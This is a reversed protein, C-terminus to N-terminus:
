KVDELYKSFLEACAQGYSPEEGQTKELLHQVASDFIEKYEAPNNIYDDMWNNFAKAFLEKM